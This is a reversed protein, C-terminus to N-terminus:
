RRASSSRTSKSIPASGSGPAPPRPSSAAISMAGAAAGGLLVGYTVYQLPSGGPLIVDGEPRSVLGFGIIVLLWALFPTAAAWTSPVIARALRPLVTNSAVALVVAIPFLVSGIYLPVLLAELLACLMACLAVVGVGVRDLWTPDGGASMM